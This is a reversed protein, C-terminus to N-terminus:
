YTRESTGFVFARPRQSRSIHRADLRGAGRLDRRADERRVEGAESLGGLGDLPGARVPQVDVHHVAVEDRIQCEPRFRDGVQASRCAQREVHVQHDLPGLLPDATVGLGARVPEHDV